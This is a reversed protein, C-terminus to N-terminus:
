LQVDAAQCGSESPPHHLTVPLPLDHGPILSLQVRRGPPIDQQAPLPDGSPPHVQPIPPADAADHSRGPHPDATFHAGIARRALLVEEFVRELLPACGSEVFAGDPGDHLEWRYYGDETSRITIHLPAIYTM